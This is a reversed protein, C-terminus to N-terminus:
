QSCSYRSTKEQLLRQNQGEQWWGQHVAVFHAPRALPAQRRFQHDAV